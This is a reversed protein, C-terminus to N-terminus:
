NYYEEFLILIRYFSIRFLYNATTAAVSNISLLLICLSNYRGVYCHFFQLLSCCHLLEVTHIVKQHIIVDNQNGCEIKVHWM